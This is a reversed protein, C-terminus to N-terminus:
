AEPADRSLVAGPGLWHAGAGDRVRAWGCLEFIAFRERARAGAACHARISNRNLDDIEIWIRRFGRERLMAAATALLRPYLGQGRLSPAVMADYLWIEGARLRFRTRLEDDLFADPQFWVYAQLGDRELVCALSGGALRAELAARPHGFAGLLELESARAWRASVPELGSARETDLAYLSCRSTRLLRAPVARRLALVAAYRPGVEALKRRLRTANAM